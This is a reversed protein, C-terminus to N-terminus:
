ITGRDIDGEVILFYELVGAPHDEFAPYGIPVKEIM